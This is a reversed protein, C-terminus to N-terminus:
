QEYELLATFSDEIRIQQKLEEEDEEEDEDDDSVAGKLLAHTLLSQRRPVTAREEDNM